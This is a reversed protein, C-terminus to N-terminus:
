SALLRDVDVHQSNAYPACNRFSISFPCRPVFEDQDLKALKHFRQVFDRVTDAAVALRSYCNQRTCRCPKKFLRALRADDAGNEKCRFFLLTTSRFFPAKAAVISVKFPLCDGQSDLLSTQPRNRMAKAAAAKRRANNYHPRPRKAEVKAKGIQPGRLQRPRWHLDVQSSM